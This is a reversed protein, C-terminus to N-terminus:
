EKRAVMGRGSEVIHERAVIKAERIVLDDTAQQAFVPSENSTADGIVGIIERDIPLTVAGGTSVGAADCCRKWTSWKPGTAPVRLTRFAEDNGLGALLKQDIGALAGRDVNIPAVVYTCM